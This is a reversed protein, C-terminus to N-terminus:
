RRIRILLLKVIMFNIISVAVGELLLVFFYRSYRYNSIRMMMDHLPISFIAQTLQIGIFLAAMVLTTYALFYPWRFKVKMESNIMFKKLGISLMIYGLVFIIQTNFFLFTMMLLGASTLFYYFLGYKRSFAAIVAPVIFTSIISVKGRFIILCVVSLALAIAASALAETQWRRNAESM